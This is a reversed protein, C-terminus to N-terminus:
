KFSDLRIWEVPDLPTRGQRLEFKVTGDSAIGLREDRGVIQNAVVTLQELGSYTTYYGDEHEVIVFNGYGRLSGIYAVVGRAAALVPAGKKGKIEIGPSYSKLNTIKDTKWGFSGVVTGKVPAMLSGKYSDFNGTKYEFQMPRSSKEREMRALELHEILEEMQRAAESLTVLRDAEDEKKRRINTLTREKKDKQSTIITYESRKQARVNDVSKERDVLDAYSNEAETLYKSARTMENKDYAALSQLYLRKEFAKKEDDIKHGPGGEPLRVGLYYYKLNYIYRGRSNRYHEESSQLQEKSHDIDKRLSALQNNLRQIVTKNMSARQEAESIEKLVNKEVNRLSDLNKRTNDIEDKIKELEQKQNLIDDARAPQGYGSIIVPLIALFLLIIKEGGYKM